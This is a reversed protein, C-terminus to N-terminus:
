FNVRAKCVFIVNLRKEWKVVRQQDSLIGVCPLASLTLWLPCTEKVFLIYNASFPSLRHKSKFSGWLFQKFAVSGDGRPTMFEGEAQLRHTVIVVASQTEM